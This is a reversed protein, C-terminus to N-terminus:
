LEGQEWAAPAASPPELLRKLLLVLWLTLAATGVVLAAVGGWQMLKKRREAALQQAVRAAALADREARSMRKASPKGGGHHEDPAPAASQPGARAAAEQVPSTARGQQQLQKKGQAAATCEKDCALLKLSTAGSDYDGSGTAARLAAQVRDCAWKQKQRRCECRVAVEERCVDGCAGEHCPARCPHQCGPLARHCPKGCSLAAAADAGGGAKGLVRQLEHCVFPLTTKGCFCPHTRPVVCAPCPGPHCREPCAHECGARRAGCPRACVECPRAAQPLRQAVEAAAFAHFGDPLARGSAGAAAASALASADLVHCQLSCAHNGCALPQGCPVHCAFPAAQHCPFTAAGHGGLCPVLVPAVCPPCPTLAGAGGAALAAAAAAAARAAPEPPAAAAQAAEARRKSSNSGAAAAATQAVNRPPKPQEWPPIPQPQLDHCRDVACAHGCALM